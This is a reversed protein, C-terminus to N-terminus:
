THSRYTHVNLAPVYLMCYTRLTNYALRSVDIMQCCIGKREEERISTRQHPTLLPAATTQGKVELIVQNEVTGMINSAVCTYTGEDETRARKIELTGNIYVRYHGGDLGSGQGNKFRPCVADYPPPGHSPVM